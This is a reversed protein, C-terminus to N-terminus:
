EYDAGRRKQPTPLPLEDDFVVRVGLKALQRRALCELARDKAQRASRLVALLYLPSEALDDPLSITTKAKM